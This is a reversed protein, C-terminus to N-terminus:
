GGPYVQACVGLQKIHRMRQFDPTDIVWKVKFNDSTSGLRILRHIVVIKQYM